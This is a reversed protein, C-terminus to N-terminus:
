DLDHGLFQGLRFVISEFPYHVDAVLRGGGGKRGFGMRIELGSVLGGEEEELHCSESAVRIRLGRRGRWMKRGGRM